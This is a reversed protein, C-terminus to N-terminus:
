ANDMEENIFDDINPFKFKDYLKGFDQWQELASDFVTKYLKEVKDAPIFKNGHGYRTKQRMQVIDWIERDKFVNNLLTFINEHHSELIEFAQAMGLFLANNKKIQRSLVDQMERPIDFQETIDELSSKENIGLESLKLKALLEIVRYLCALAEEINGRDLSRRSFNMMDAAREISVKKSNKLIDLIKRIDSFIEKGKGSAENLAKEYGFRNWFGLAKALSFNIPYIDSYPKLVTEAGAYAGSKMLLAANDFNIKAYITMCSIAFIKETGTKVVGDCREDSIYEINKIKEDIAALVAATTMQKTGSTPNVVIEHGSFRAGCEKILARAEKRCQNLDDHNSFIKHAESKIGFGDLESKVLEAMAASDESFSSALISIDPKRSKISSSIGSALNSHKGATGTGITCVYIKKLQM